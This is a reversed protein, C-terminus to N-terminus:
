AHGAMLVFRAKGAAARFRNGPSRLYRRWRLATSSFRPEALLRGAAELLSVHLSHRAQTAM